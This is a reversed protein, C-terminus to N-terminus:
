SYACKLSNCGRTCSSSVRISPHYRIFSSPWFSTLIGPIPDSVALASTAEIPSALHKLFPQSNAAQNPNTGRWYELQPLVTNSPILLRPSPYKLINNTWPARDAISEEGRLGELVIRIKEEASYRRRTARRIDRVAQGATKPKSERKQRMAYGGPDVISWFGERM